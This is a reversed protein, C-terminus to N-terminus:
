FIRRLDHYVLGAAYIDNQLVLEDEVNVVEDHILVPQSKQKLIRIDVDSLYQPRGMEKWATLANGHNQDIMYTQLRYAGSLGKLITQKTVTEEDLEYDDGFMHEQLVQPLNWTLVRINEKYDKTVITSQDGQELVYPYLSNLYQYAYYVPKKIGHINVIGYKGSFPDISPGSEEFIDTITWYSYSDVYPSVDRITSLVFCATFVSDKGYTDEHIPSVNWETFHIPIGKFPSNEVIEKVTKVENMMVHQGRYHVNDNEFGPEFSVDSCYHHTSIFDIPTKSKYCFDLLEQIWMIKSTAPGGVILDQDVSKITDVTKKYLKFYDEMDGTWFADLDPENWVEFRWTKIENLGYREVLALVFARIMQNWLAYDKPPTIHAEYKFVTENGLSLEKPMFGLEVFPTFGESLFFDFIKYVNQFNYEIKGDITGQYVGVLDHFIAHFRISKFNIEKQIERVHERYDERLTLYAHGSGVSERWTEDKVTMKALHIDCINQKM